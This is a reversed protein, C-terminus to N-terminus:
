CVCRAVSLAEVAKLEGYVEWCRWQWRTTGRRQTFCSPVQTGWLQEGGLDGVRM